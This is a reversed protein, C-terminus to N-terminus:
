LPVAFSHHGDEDAAGRWQVIKCRRSGRSHRMLGGVRVRFKGAIGLM